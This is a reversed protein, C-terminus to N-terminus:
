LKALFQSFVLLGEPWPGHGSTTDLIGQEGCNIFLSGLTTALEESSTISCYPNDSSNLVLSPFNLRGLDALMLQSSEAQQLQSSEYLHAGTQLNPEIQLCHEFPAVLFAGKIPKTISKVAMLFALITVSHAIFILPKTAQNNSYDIIQKTWSTSDNDLPLIHATELKDAWRCYWNDAQLKLPNALIVIDADKCKM